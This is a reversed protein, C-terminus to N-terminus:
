KCDDLDGLKSGFPEVSKGHACNCNEEKVSKQHLDALGLLYGPDRSAIVAIKAQVIIITVLAKSQHTRL